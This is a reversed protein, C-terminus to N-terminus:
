YLKDIMAKIQVRLLPIDKQASEWVIALDTGFYEHILKNRMGMIKAWEIEPFQARIEAPINGAAEGMIEFARVVAYITKEDNEFQAFDFGEIFKLILETSSSIDRIYDEYSRTM